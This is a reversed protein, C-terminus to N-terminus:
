SNIVEIGEDIEGVVQNYILLKFFQFLCISSKFLIENDM